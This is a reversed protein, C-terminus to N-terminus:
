KGIYGEPQRIFLMFWVDSWAFKLYSLYGCYPHLLIHVRLFTLV